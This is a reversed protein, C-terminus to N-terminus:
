NKEENMIVEVADRDLIVVSLGVLSEQILKALTNNAELKIVATGSEVDVSAHGIITRDPMYVPVYLTVIPNSDDM